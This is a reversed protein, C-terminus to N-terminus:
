LKDGPKVGVVNITVPGLAEERGTMEVRALKPVHYEIVSLFLKFAKEPDPPVAM